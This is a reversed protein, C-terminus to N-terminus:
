WIGGKFLVGQMRRANKQAMNHGQARGVNNCFFPLCAPAADPEPKM